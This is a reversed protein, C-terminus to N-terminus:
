KYLQSTNSKRSTNASFQQSTPRKNEIPDNLKRMDAFKKNQWYYWLLQRQLETTCVILCWSPKGHESDESWMIRSFNGNVNSFYLTKLNTSGLIHSYIKTSWFRFLERFISLIGLKSKTKRRHLSPTGSHFISNTGNSVKKRDTTKRWLNRHYTIKFQIIAHYIYCVLIM